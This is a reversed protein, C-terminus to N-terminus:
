RPSRKISQSSGSLMMYSEHFHVFHDNPNSKTTRRGFIELIAAIHHMNYSCLLNICILELGYGYNRKLIKVSFFM